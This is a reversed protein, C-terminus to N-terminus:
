TCIDHYIFLNLQVDVGRQVFLHVASYRCFCAWFTLLLYLTWLDDRDQDEAQRAQHWVYMCVHQQVICVYM